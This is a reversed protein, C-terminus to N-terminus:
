VYKFALNYLYLDAAATDLPGAEAQDRAFRWQVIDAASFSGATLTLTTRKRLRLTAPVAVTSAITEVMTASVDMTEADASPTGYEFELRVNGSTVAIAWDILIQATTGVYAEPIVFHGCLLDRTTSDKFIWCTTPVADTANLGASSGPYVNGVSDPLLSGDLLPIPEAM